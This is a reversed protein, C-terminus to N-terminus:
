LVSQHNLPLRVMFTLLQLPTLFLLALTPLTAAAQIMLRLGGGSIFTNLLYLNGRSHMWCWQMTGLPSVYGACIECRLPTTYVCRLALAGPCIEACHSASYRHGLAELARAANDKEDLSM